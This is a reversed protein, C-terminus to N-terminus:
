RKRRRVIQLDRRKVHRIRKPKKLDVPVEQSIEQLNNKICSQESDTYKIADELIQYPFQGGERIEYLRQSLRRKEASFDKKKETLTSLFQKDFLVSCVQQVDKVCRRERLYIQRLEGYKVLAGEPMDSFEALHDLDTLQRDIRSLEGSLEENSAEVIEFIEKLYSFVAEIKKILLLESSNYSGKLYGNKVEKISNPHEEPLIYHHFKGQVGFKKEVPQYEFPEPKINENVRQVDDTESCKVLIFSDCPVVTWGFSLLQKLGEKNVTPGVTKYKKELLKVDIYLSEEKDLKWRVTLTKLSIREIDKTDISILKAIDKVSQNQAPESTFIYPNTELCEHLNFFKGQGLVSKTPKHFIFQM